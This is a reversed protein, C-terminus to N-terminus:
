TAAAELAVEALRRAAALDVMLTATVVTPVGADAPADSMDIVLTDILGHYRDAVHRPTTGGAMRSLM